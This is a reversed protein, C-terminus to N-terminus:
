RAEEKFVNLWNDAETVPKWFWGRPDWCQGYSYEDRIIEFERVADENKGAIMFAKAKIFHATAVDNLAWYKFIEEKSGQPYDSLGAQMERARGEYLKICKDAYGLVLNLDEHELAEWAKVVLTSSSYDGFDYFIGTELMTLNEQVAEAPKWFWGKPDWCQGGSYEDTLKRYAIKAEDFMQANHLAKGKIFLATAVDNLAWRSHIQSETGQSSSAENLKSQMQQAIKGYRDIYENTLDLVTELDNNELAEWARNVLSASSGSVPSPDAAQTPEVTLLEKVMEANVSDEASIRSSLMSFFLNISGLFFLVGM